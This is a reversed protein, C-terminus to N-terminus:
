KTVTSDTKAAYIIDDLKKYYKNKRKEPVFGKKKSYWPMNSNEAYTGLFRTSFDM